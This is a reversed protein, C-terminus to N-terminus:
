YLIYMVIQSEKNANEITIQSSTYKEKAEAELNVESLDGVKIKPRYNFVLHLNQLLDSYVNKVFQFFRQVENIALANKLYRHYDTIIKFCILVNEDNEREMLQYILQLLDRTLKIRQDYATNASDAAAAAASVNLNLFPNTRQIIEFTKKRLQNVSSESLFQPETENLLRMFKNFMDEILHSYM